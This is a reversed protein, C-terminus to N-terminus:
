QQFVYITVRSLRPLLKAGNKLIPTASNFTSAKSMLNRGLLAPVGGVLYAPCFKTHAAKYM